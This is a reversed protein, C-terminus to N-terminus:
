ERNLYKKNLSMIIMEVMKEAKLMRSEIEEINNYKQKLDRINKTLSSITSRLSENEKKLNNNDEEIRKFIEGIDDVMLETVGGTDVIAYIGFMLNDMTEKTTQPTKYVLWELFMDIDEKYFSKDCIIIREM